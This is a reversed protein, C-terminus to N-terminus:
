DAEEEGSTDEEEDLRTNFDENDDVTAHPGAKNDTGTHSEVADQVDEADAYEQAQAAM